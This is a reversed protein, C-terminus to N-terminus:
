AIIKLKYSTHTIKHHYFIMALVPKFHTKNPTFVYTIAKLYDILTKKDIINSIRRLNFASFILGVDASASKITKKTMIYYFDWQRKIIGFPHEVIAQRLKYTEKNQEVRIANNDVNQQYQSREILRGKKNKTCKEFAQCKLCKNTKYHKVLVSSSKRDKNYWKGNTELVQGQPCIYQDDNPEYIFNKVDYNWDPAHSALEPIAVLTNIGLSDTLAFQSGTHYGKDLLATFENNRIIAKARALMGAMAHSDNQNTVKYDICLCHKADVTSQVNYAVETINNRIILLRSDPDTTSIQKENTQNLENELSKYKERQKLHKEIKANIDKKMEDDPKDGDEQALIQNYQELKNDIYKIHKDIKDQNFNKKKANQARLKTGDVALLKGGILDLNKALQVTARFVKQIAKSNNKRFNAITNHDPTLGNMLWIVEINRHCEKELNRSSRIRNLYGYMYLKLLCAPHYAPRGNDIFQMNFGCQELNISNVFADIIRVDNELAIMEEFAFFQMQHRDFGEIFKM